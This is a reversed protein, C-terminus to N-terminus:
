EIEVIPQDNRLKAVNSVIIKDELELGSIVQYDQGLINGLKVAKQKAILSSDKCQSEEEKAVFVFEQEGINTIATTHIFIGTTKEWIVRAIVQQRDRFNYGQSPVKAKVM